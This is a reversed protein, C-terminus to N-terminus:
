KKVKQNERKKLLEVKRVLGQLTEFEDDTLYKAADLYSVIFSERLYDELPKFLGNIVEQTKHFVVSLETEGFFMKEALDEVHKKQKESLKDYSKGYENLAYCDELQHLKKHDEPTLVEKRSRIKNLLDFYKKKEM